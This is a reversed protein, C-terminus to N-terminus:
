DEKVDLLGQNVFMSRIFAFHSGAIYRNKDCLIMSNPECLIMVEGKLINLHNDNFWDTYIYM